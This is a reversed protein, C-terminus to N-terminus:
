KDVFVYEDDLAVAHKSGTATSSPDLVEYEKEVMQETKRHELRLAAMALVLQPIQARQSRSQLDDNPYTTTCYSAPRSLTKEIHADISFRENRDTADKNVAKPTKM